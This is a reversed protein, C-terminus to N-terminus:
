SSLMLVEETLIEEQGSAAQDIMTSVKYFTSSLRGLKASEQRKEKTKFIM